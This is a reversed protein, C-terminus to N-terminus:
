TKEALFDQLKFRRFEGPSLEMPFVGARHHLYFRRPSEMDINLLCATGDDSFYSHSIYACNEGADYQDDTIWITGRVQKAIHRYVYSIIGQSGVTSGPGFDLDLAGPYAWSNLFYVEGKGHRRRLLFPEMEEDEVALVETESDTIEIEGIRTTFIGFRRPFVFGLRDQSDPATAWYIRRGAAKVKVGCLESFDGGYLLDEVGYSTYNRNAHTGFHPISVFLVGGNRVYQSLETYQKKSATNWGSFLLAKYHKTLFAADVHDRAFSVVDVMGYPTGSLFLNHHPHLVPPRPFFTNRVIRWGREPQGEFWLPNKEAIDFLGGVAANPNYEHGCLDCNGKIVAATTEPQGSPTGWEKVYDYFDSIVKRYGQSVPSHYDIKHFLSRAREVEAATRLPDLNRINGIEVRPLEFLPADTAKTTQSFWNGSENILIKSGAMFKQYMGLELLKLKYKSGYPIWSYHEHALHSGWLPLDYQRHLGRGLASAMNLHSFAFDEILPIDVGGSIEYDVHFSASTTLIRGWGDRKRASVEAKVRAVLDDALMVLDHLGPAQGTEEDFRFSFIEGLDYGLYFAGAEKFRHSWKPRASAYIPITFIGLQAAAKIFKLLGAGYRESHKSAEEWDSITLFKLNKWDPEPPVIGLDELAHLNAFTKPVAHGDFMWGGLPGWFQALNGQNDEIIKDLTELPSLIDPTWATHTRGSRSLYGAKGNYVGSGIFIGCPPLSIGPQNPRLGEVESSAVSCAEEIELHM